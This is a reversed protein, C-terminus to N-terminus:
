RWLGAFTVLCIEFLRAFKVIPKAIWNSKQYDRGSFSQQNGQALRGTERLPERKLLAGLRYRHINCGTYRLFKNM